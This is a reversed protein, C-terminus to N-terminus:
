AGDGGKRQAAHPALDALAVRLRARARALRSKVTGEALGLAQAIEQYTRGEVERLLFPTRLGEPLADVAQWLQRRRDNEQVQAEPGAGGAPLPPLDPDDLSLHQRRQRLLDAAANATLRYLWTSFAAEGRFNPLAQWAKLFATQTVEEADQPHGTKGLALAYVMRQHREVLQAFAGGDGAQARAALAKDDMTRPM